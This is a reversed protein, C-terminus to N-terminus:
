ILLSTTPWSISQGHVATKAERPARKAKPDQSMLRPQADGGTLWDKASQAEGPERVMPFLEEVFDIYNRRPVRVPVPIMEGSRGVVLVRNIEAGM